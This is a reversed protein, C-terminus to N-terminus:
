SAALCGATSCRSAHARGATRSRRGDGFSAGPWRVEIEADSLDDILAAIVADLENGAVILVPLDTLGRM